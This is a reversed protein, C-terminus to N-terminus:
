ALEVGLERLALRLEAHTKPGYNRQVFLVRTPLAIFERMTSVPPLQPRGALEGRAARLIVRQARVPLSNLVPRIAARFRGARTALPEDLWSLNSM